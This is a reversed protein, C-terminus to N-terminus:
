NNLNLNLYKSDVKPPAVHDWRGGYEDFTIFIMSNNWYKSAQVAEIVQKLKEESSGGVTSYGPHMNDKGLPKYFSVSPLQNNKLDNFLDTEDQLHNRGETGVEYNKFFVFPQHHAQWSSDPTGNMADNYGGSYWKWSIGASTLLDGITTTNQSPVLNALPPMTVPYPKNVSYATNVVYNDPTIAKEPYIIKGTTGSISNVMSSPPNPFYPCGPTILWQHNLMSGGFAGQFWYDFLTYNQALQAMYHGQGVLDYYSMVLGKAGSYPVYKNMKGGNMQYQHTYFAHTVDMTKANLGFYQALDFPGNSINQPLGAQVQPLTSYAQDNDDLQTKAESSAKAIGNGKSYSTTTNM